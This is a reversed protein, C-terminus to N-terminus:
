LSKGIGQKDLLQSLADPDFGMLLEGAVDIVPVGQVRLGKASAKIELEKEAGADKEVDKEIYPVGKKKLYAKTQKCVGCWSATYLTVLHGGAQETNEAAQAAAETSGKREFSRRSVAGCPYRGQAGPTRLDALYLYDATKLEDPSKSLDRVMVQARSAEPVEDVKSVDHYAGTPDVFTFLLDTRQKTVSIQAAGPTEEVPKEAPAAAPKRCAGLLILPVLCTAIRKM